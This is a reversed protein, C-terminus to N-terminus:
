AFTVTNGILQTLLAFDRWSLNQLGTWSYKKECSIYDFKAHVTLIIEWLVNGKMFTLATNIRTGKMTFITINAGSTLANTSYYLDTHYNKTIHLL